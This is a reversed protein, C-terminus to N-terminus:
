EKKDNRRKELNRQYSKIANDYARKERLESDSISEAKCCYAGTIEYGNNCTLVCVTTREGVNAYSVNKFNDM